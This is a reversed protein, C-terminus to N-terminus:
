AADLDTLLEAIPIRLAAAIAALETLNFPTRGTLRRHLTVRPIGTEDSLWAIKVGYRAIQAAVNEAVMQAADTRDM